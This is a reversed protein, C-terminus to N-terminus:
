MRNTGPSLAIPWSKKEWAWAHAIMTHLDAYQPTWGLKQFALAPNAVLRDPDGERRPAHIVTIDKGTVSRSADLVERVSFGTGNGLNYAQSGQGNMLSRLALWHAECLDLVHVYDRICTGDPTDYDCGFIAIHARRGSAVQLISPILHTEPDHCEGLVAEPDAGAANFYRLCVSRLGYAREYDGLAQEVMLKSRGYPNVPVRPHAEDIPTYAPLGFIAATSSFIFYQIGHAQMADLLAFTTGVNNQYYKAPAIQSEGVQSHSAFYMVADFQRETFLANLLPRDAADGFIFEGCLVSERHGSSLNDLTTVSCGLQGLRRVMHSGIYGAGGVVLVNM